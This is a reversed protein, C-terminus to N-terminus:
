RKRNVLKRLVKGISTSYIADLESRYEEQIRRLREIEDNLAKNESNINSIHNDKLQLENKNQRVLDEINKIHNEKDKIAQEINCIYNEKETLTVEINKIHNDKDKLSTEINKIYDDKLRLNGEINNIHDDKLKLNEEINNIHDDKLKLNGEINNIHDNKLQIVQELKKVQAEKINIVQELNSIHNDKLTIIENNEYADCLKQYFKAEVLNFERLDNQKVKDIHAIDPVIGKSGVIIKRYCRGEIDRPYVKENYFQNIVNVESLVANSYVSLFHYRMLNEWVNISGHELCTYNINEEKLYALTAKWNPLGNQIHEALWPHDNGVLGKFFANINKEADAVGETDFPGMLIFGKKGVRNIEDIFNKRREVPIHEFVDLAVVFDYSDDALEMQTADGLIYQPDNQFEEDLHIDLYTIKDNSLFKELNRHENAGVELINFSESKNRLENIIEQTKKYRQYQDFLVEIM